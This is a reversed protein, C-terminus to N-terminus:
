AFKHLIRNLVPPGCLRPLFSHMYPICLSTRFHPQRLFTFCYHMPFGTFDLFIWFYGTFDLETFAAPLQQPDVDPLLPPQVTHRQSTHVHSSAPLSKEGSSDQSQTDDSLRRSLLSRCETRMSKAMCARLSHFLSGQM